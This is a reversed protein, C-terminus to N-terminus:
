TRGRRFECCLKATPTVIALIRRWFYATWYSVTDEGSAMKGVQAPGKRDPM